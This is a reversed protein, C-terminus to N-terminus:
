HMAKQDIAIRLKNAPDGSGRKMEEISIEEVALSEGVSAETWLVEMKDALARLEQPTALLIAFGTEKDQSIEM